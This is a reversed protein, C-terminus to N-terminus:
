LSSTRRPRHAAHRRPRVRTSSPQLRARGGRSMSLTITEMPPVLPVIASSPITGGARRAQRAQREALDPDDDFAVAVLGFSLISDLCDGAFAVWTTNLFREFTPTLKVPRGERRVCVGAKLLQDRLIVRIAAITPDSTFVGQLAVIQDHNLLTENRAGHTTSRTRPPARRGRRRLALAEM